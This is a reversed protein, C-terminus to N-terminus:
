NVESNTKYVYMQNASIFGLPDQFYFTQIELRQLMLLHVLPFNSPISLLDYNSIVSDM